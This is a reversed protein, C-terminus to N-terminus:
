DEVKCKKMHNSVVVSATVVVSSTGVVSIGEAVSISILDFSSASGAAAPLIGLKSINYKILTIFDEFAKIINFAM